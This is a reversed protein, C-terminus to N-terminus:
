THDSYRRARVSSEWDAKHWTEIGQVPNHLPQKYELLKDFPNLLPIETEADNVMVYSTREGRHAPLDPSWKEFFANALEDDSKLNLDGMLFLREIEPAEDEPLDRHSEFLELALFAVDPYNILTDALENLHEFDHERAAKNGSSDAPAHWFLFGVTHAGVDCVMYIPPRKWFGSLKYFAPNLLWDSRYMIGILEGRSGSGQTAYEKAKAATAPWCAIPLPDALM